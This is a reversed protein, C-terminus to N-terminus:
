RMLEGFAALRPTASSMTGTVACGYVAVNTLVSGLLRLETREYIRAADAFAVRLPSLRQRLSRPAFALSLRARSKATLVTMLESDKQMPRDRKEREVTVIAPDRGNERGSVRSIM